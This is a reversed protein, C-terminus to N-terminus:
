MTVTVSCWFGLNNEANMCRQVKPLNTSRSRFRVVRLSHPAASAMTPGQVQDFAM